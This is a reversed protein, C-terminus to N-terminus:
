DDEKARGVKFTGIEVADRGTKLPEDVVGVTVQYTGHGPNYVPRLAYRDHYIQGPQWRDTPWTWDCGDHDGSWRPGGDVLRAQVDLLVGPAPPADVTWWTEVDVMERKKMTAPAVRAGILTLPGIRVPERRADAPVESALCDADPAIAPAAPVGVPNAPVAVTPAPRAPADPLPIVAEVGDTWVATGLAGSRDAFTALIKAASEAEPRRTVAFDAHLPRVRVQRVGDPGLTLTFIAAETDSRADFLLNGADYIVPRGDIVEVGHLLHASSGLIADFGSGIV